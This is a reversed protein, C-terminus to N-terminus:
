AADDPSGPVAANRAAEMAAKEATRRKDEEGMAEARRVAELLRPSLPRNSDQKMKLQDPSGRSAVSLVATATDSKIRAM